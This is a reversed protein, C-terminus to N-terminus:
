GWELRLKRGRYNATHHLYHGPTSHSSAGWPWPPSTLPLPASRSSPESIGPLEPATGNLLLVGWRHNPVVSLRAGRTKISCTEILINVVIKRAKVQPEIGNILPLLLVSLILMLQKTPLHVKITLLAVQLVMDVVCILVM